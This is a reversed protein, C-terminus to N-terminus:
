KLLMMKKTLVEDGATLRYFYVGSAVLEGNEDRGNWELEYRGVACDRDILTRVQQGLVNFIALRVQADAPLDFAITTGPNFPNPYNQTLTYEQPLGRSDATLRSLRVRAGNSNWQLNPYVRQGDVFVALQDGDKPYLKSVEGSGDHGYVPTLRLTGGQYVGLGCTLTEEACFSIVAKERLPQGDVTINNGYVSMWSRSTEVLPPSEWIGSDGPPYIMTDIIVTDFFPGGGFPPFTLPVPADVKAWYGFTPRLEILTNLQGMGPLWIQAGHDFGMAEELHDLITM